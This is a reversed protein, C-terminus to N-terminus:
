KTLNSVVQKKQDIMKFLFRRFPAYYCEQQCESLDKINVCHEECCKSLTLKEDPISETIFQKMVEIDVAISTGCDKVEHQYFYYAKENEGPMCLMGVLKLDPNNALDMATLGRGCLTCKKVVDNSM